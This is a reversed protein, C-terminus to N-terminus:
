HEMSLLLQKSYDWVSKKLIGFERFRYGVLLRVTSSSNTFQVEEFKVTRAQRLFSLGAFFRESNYGIGMRFAVFTNIRIDNERSGNENQYFIWNHAPGVMLAAGAFFGKYVFNYAYGPAISLTTYRLQQFTSGNGFIVKNNSLVASDARLKFNSLSGALLFAGGGKLQREAFTFSSKLSYKKDNFIYMGTLGYNRTSIDSRQPYPLGNLPNIGDGSQYFGKYKQYYFDAGWNKSLANIQYDSVKSTGYRYRSKENIPIAFAVELAVDFVYAGFGLAYSTNPQFSVSQGTKLSKVDFNLTRTKLVPWVFFYDEFGQIYESRISDPFPQAHSYLAVTIGVFILGWKM